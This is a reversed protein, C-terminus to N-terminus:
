SGSAAARGPSLTVFTSRIRRLSCGAVPHWVLSGSPLAEPHLISDGPRLRDTTSVAHPDETGKTGSCRRLPAGSSPHPLSRGLERGASGRPSRGASIGARCRGHFAGLPAAGLPRASPSVLEPGFRVRLPETCFLERRHPGLAAGSLLFGTPVNPKTEVSKNVDVLTRAPKMPRAGTRGCHPLAVAAVAAHRQDLPRSVSADLCRTCCLHLIRAASGSLHTAEMGGRRIAPRVPPRGLPRGSPQGTAFGHVLAAPASVPPLAHLPHFGYRTV